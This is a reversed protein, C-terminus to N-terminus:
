PSERESDRLARSVAVLMELLGAIEPSRLLTMAERISLRDRRERFSPWAENVAPPLRMATRFFPEYDIQSLAGLVMMGNSVMGMFEPRTTASFNEDFEDLVANLAALLGADAAREVAILGQEIADANRAIRALLRDLQRREAATLASDPGPEPAAAHTM